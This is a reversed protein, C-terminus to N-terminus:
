GKGKKEVAKRKREMTPVSYVDATVGQARHGAMAAAVELDVGKERWDTISFKRLSHLNYGV